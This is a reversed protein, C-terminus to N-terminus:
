KKCPVRYMVWVDGNEIDEVEYREVTANELIPEVGNNRVEEVLAGIEATFDVDGDESFLAKPIRHVKGFYRMPTSSQQGTVGQTTSYYAVTVKHSM